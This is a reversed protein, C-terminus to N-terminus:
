PEAKIPAWRHYEPSEKRRHAAAVMGRCEGFGIQAFGDRTARGRFIVEDGDELYYRTEGSSLALPARGGQSIELLSGWGLPEPTSITGSGLLDGADLNCGNSSHHAVMQSFTWYLHRSNGLSLRQAPLGRARMVGTLLLVELTVSLAGHTQDFECWLHPLPAPDGEPRPAQPLRFPLLAEATIIWPSISTLFNKALFPGLPQYEWGQIDRASWDNLLCFGAIHAHAEAIPIPEGLMNGPGIWAGLEMEYDLECSPGFRPVTGGSPALEGIPRRVATGSPRVSSARGHCAIPMYKYNPMLPNDPQTLRGVNRAHAIGAHFDTYDGIAAPLDMACDVARHLIRPALGRVADTAEDSLIKSCAGVCRRARM